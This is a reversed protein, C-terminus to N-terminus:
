FGGEATLRFAERVIHEQRGVVCTPNASASVHQAANRPSTGTETPLTAKTSRTGRTPELPLPPKSRPPHLYALPLILPNNPKTSHSNFITHLPLSLDILVSPPRALNYILSVVGGAPCFPSLMERSEPDLDRFLFAGLSSNKKTQQYSRGQLWECPSTSPRGDDM